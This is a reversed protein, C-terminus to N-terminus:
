SMGGISIKVKITRESVSISTVKTQPRDRPQPAAEKGADRCDCRECPDLHANCFPCIKYFM